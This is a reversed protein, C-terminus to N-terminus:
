WGVGISVGRGYYGGYGGGYYGGGYYGGYAPYSRYAYSRSPYYGGYYGGYGGRYYSSYGGGYGGGYGCGYGGRSRHHAEATSSMGLTALGVVVAVAMLLRKM